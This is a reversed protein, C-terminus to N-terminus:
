ALATSSSKRAPVHAACFKPTCLPSCLLAASPHLYEPAPPCCDPHSHTLDLLILSVIVICRILGAAIFTHEIHRICSPFRQARALLTFRSARKRRTTTRLAPARDTDRLGAM